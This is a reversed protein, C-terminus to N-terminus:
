GRAGRESAAVERRRDGPPEEALLEQRDGAPRRLPRVPRRVGGYGVVLTILGALTVPVFLMFRALVLVAVADGGEVGAAHLGVLLAADFTGVYGPAAPIAAALSALVVVALAALVSLEVDVARAISLFTVGELLWILV